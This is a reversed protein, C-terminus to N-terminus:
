SFRRGSISSSGYRQLCAGCDRVAVAGGDWGGAAPVALHAHRKGLRSASTSRRFLVCGRDGTAIIVPQNRRLAPTGISACAEPDATSQLSFALVLSIV